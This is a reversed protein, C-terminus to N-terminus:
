PLKHLIATGGILSLQKTEAGSMSPTWTHTINLHIQHQLAIQLIYQKFTCHCTEIHNGITVCSNYLLGHNCGSWLYILRVYKTVKSLCIHNGFTSGPCKPLFHFGKKHHHLLLCWLTWSWLHLHNLLTEELQIHYIPCTRYIWVHDSDHQFHQPPSAQMSCKLPM